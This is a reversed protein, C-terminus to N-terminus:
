GRVKANEGARAYALLDKILALMRSNGEVVHEVLQEAEADLHAQLKRALLQTYSTAM